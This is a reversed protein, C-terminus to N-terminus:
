ERLAAFPALNPSFLFRKESSLTKARFDKNFDNPKANSRHSDLHAIPDNNYTTPNRAQCSGVAQHFEISVTAM